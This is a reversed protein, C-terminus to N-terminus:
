QELPPYFAEEIHNLNFNGDHYVVSIIDFRVNMDIMNLRLYADASRVIHRIKKLDVADEPNGWGNDTRTKVEVFVITDDKVAVIDLEKHGCRWNRDLITYGHRKMYDAATEEGEIGLINHKAMITLNYTAFISLIQPM